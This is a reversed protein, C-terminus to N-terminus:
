CLILIIRWLQQLSMALMRYNVRMSPDRFLFLQIIFSNEQFTNGNEVPDYQERESESLDQITQIQIKLPLTAITNGVGVAHSVGNSSQALNFSDLHHFVEDLKNPNGTAFYINMRRPM